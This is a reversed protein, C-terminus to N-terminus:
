TKVLFFFFYFLCVLWFWGERILRVLPLCKKLPPVDPALDSIQAGLGSESPPGWIQGDTCASQSANARCLSGEACFGGDM